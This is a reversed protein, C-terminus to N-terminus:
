EPKPVDARQTLTRISISIKSESRKILAWIVKARSDEFQVSRIFTTNRDDAFLDLIESTM